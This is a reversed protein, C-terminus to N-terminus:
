GPQQLFWQYTQQIGTKLDITHRWGLAHLRSVDLLKQPTGDPKSTDFEIQAAPFIIERILEALEGVTLDQGTGVNITQRDDYHSLLFLCAEALDDVHLFERRPRGSGWVIVGPRNHVKAEHFKRMLAPLVHSSQLDFNDHPGYLNTPMATIFNCRYQDRYAQCSMVGSIKAIAYAQNTPELPGTM